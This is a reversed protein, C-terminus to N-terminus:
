ADNVLFKEHIRAIEQQMNNLQAYLPLSKSKESMDVMTEIEPNKIDPIISRDTNGTNVVEFLHLENKQQIAKQFADRTKETLYLGGNLKVSISSKKREVPRADLSYPDWDKLNLGLVCLQTIAEHYQQDSNKKGNANLSVTVHPKGELVNKVLNTLINKPGIEIFIRGGDQYITEIEDKFLVPNLIHESLTKKIADTDDPYLGGTTNSYM